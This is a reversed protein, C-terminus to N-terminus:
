QGTFICMMIHLIVLFSDETNGTLHAVDHFFRSKAQAFFM